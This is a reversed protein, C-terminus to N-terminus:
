FILRATIPFHDSVFKRDAYKKTVTQFEPCSSFGSYYIHDIVDSAKGWNNYTGENDTKVASVRANEMKGELPEFAKDGPKMNFDGTLVVPLGDKNIEALKDVILQLGNRRAETGVHDLHTNVVYFKKGTKKHKMVAWTATRKCAADWGMSPKDPTESLWFTGWDLLSVTKKNWFITMFEGEKKGNDRGVGVGKYDRLNDEIFLIQYSMAEQVGFVDPKQDKLMEATAPYRLAWSNTGDKAEGIRINYSMVKLDSADQAQGASPLMLMAAMVSLIIRKM